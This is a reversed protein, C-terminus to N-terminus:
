IILIKKNLVHMIIQLDEKVMDVLISKMFITVAAQTKLSLHPGPNRWPLLQLVNPSDETKILKYTHM